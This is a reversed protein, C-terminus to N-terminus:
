GRYPTPSIEVQIDTFGARHLLMQASEVNLRKNASPGVRVGTVPLLQPTPSGGSLERLSYYPMLMGRGVRFQPHVM